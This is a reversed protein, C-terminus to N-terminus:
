LSFIFTVIFFFLFFFMLLCNNVGLVNGWRWNSVHSRLSYWVLPDRRDPVCFLVRANLGAGRLGMRKKGDRIQVSATGLTLNLSLILQWPNSVSWLQITFLSLDVGRSRVTCLLLAAVERGRSKYHSCSIVGTSWLWKPWGSPASPSLKCDTILGTVAHVVPLHDEPNALTTLHM